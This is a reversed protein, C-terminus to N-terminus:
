EFAEMHRQRDTKTETKREFNRIPYFSKNRGQITQKIVEVPDNGEMALEKLKHFDMMTATSTPWRNWNEKMYQVYFAYARAFEQSRLEEPVNAGNVIAGDKKILNM